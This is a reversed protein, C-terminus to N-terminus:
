GHKRVSWFLAARLLLTFHIVRKANGADTVARQAHQALLGESQRGRLRGRPENQSFRIRYFEADLRHTRIVRIPRRANIAGSAGVNVRAQLTFGLAGRGVEHM